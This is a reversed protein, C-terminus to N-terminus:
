DFLQHMAGWQANVDHHVAHGSPSVWVKEPGVHGVRGRGNGRGGRQSTAYDDDNVRNHYRCVVALNDLNTEGGNKWATVHHYQCHDASKRCGPVVCNPMMARLLVRQKDNAFRSSRYLNVAGEVPHFLGVMVGPGSGGATPDGAGATPDGAGTTAADDADTASTNLYDFLYTLYDAGTITTGDTLKLEVEDGNGAMIQIHAALPVMILPEPVAARVGGGGGNSSGTTVLRGFADALQPGVPATTDIGDYLHRELDEVLREDTTVTVSRMKHRSASFRVGPQPPTSDAPIIKKAAQKLAGFSGRVQLLELRLQWRTAADVRPPLRREIYILKDMSVQHAQVLERAQRQKARFRTSGFYTAHLAELERAHNTDLEGSRALEKNFSGIISLANRTIAAHYAAFDVGGAVDPAAPPASGSHITM